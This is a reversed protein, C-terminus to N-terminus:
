AWRRLLREAGEALEAVIAAAPKVDGVMEVSQGAYLAMADIEGTTMGGPPPPAFRPIQNTASDLHQEGM